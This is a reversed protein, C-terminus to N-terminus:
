TFHRAFLPINDIHTQLSTTTNWELLIDVGNYKSDRLISSAHYLVEEMESTLPVYNSWDLLVRQCDKEFM